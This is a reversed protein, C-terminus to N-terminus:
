CLQPLYLHLTVGLEQLDVKRLVPSILRTTYLDLVLVKWSLQSQSPDDQKANFRLMDKLLSVQVQRLCTPRTPNSSAAM